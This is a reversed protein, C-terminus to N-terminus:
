TFYIRRFTHIYCTPSLTEWLTYINKILIVLCTSRAMGTQGDTRRDTRVRLDRFSYASSHQSKAHLNSPKRRWNTEASHWSWQLAWLGDL